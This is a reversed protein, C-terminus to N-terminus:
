PRQAIHCKLELSLPMSLPPKESPSRRRCPLCSRVAFPARRRAPASRGRMEALARRHLQAASLFADLDLRDRGAREPEIDREADAAQRAAAHDFNVPRFRRALRRERQMGDGLRLLRAAGGGEDVGFMREIRDIGLLQADVDVFQDHRLGVGALLRQLDGIRQHSRVRDVHQHDIRDGREHRPGLDLALHAVAMDAELRAQHALRQALDGARDAAARVSTMKMLWIRM